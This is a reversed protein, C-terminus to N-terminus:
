RFLIALPLQWTAEPWRPGFVDVTGSCHHRRDWGFCRDDQRLCLIEQRRKTSFMHSAKGLPMGAVIWSVVHKLWKSRYQTALVEVIILGPVQSSSKRCMQLGSFDLCFVECLPIHKSALDMSSEGAMRMWASHWSTGRAQRQTSVRQHMSSPRIFPVHSCSSCRFSLVNSPQAPVGASVGIHWSTGPMNSLHISQIPPAEGLLWLFENRLPLELKLKELTKFTQLYGGSDKCMTSDLVGFLVAFLRDFDILITGRKKRLFGLRLSGWKRWRTELEVAKVKSSRTAPFGRATHKDHDLPKGHVYRMIEDCMLSVTGSATLFRLWWENLWRFILQEYSNLPRASGYGSHISSSTPVPCRGGTRALTLSTRQEPHCPSPSQHQAGPKERTKSGHPQNVWIM